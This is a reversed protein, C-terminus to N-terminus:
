INIECTMNPGCYGSCCDTNVTCAAGLPACEVETPGCTGDVRCNGSCCDSAATCTQGDAVCTAAGCLLVGNADPACVVGGCCDANTACAEGMQACADGCVNNTCIGSCCDATGACAIGDLTCMVGGMCFGNTCTGSCCDGDMQCVEGDLRCGLSGCRLVGAVGPQCLMRGIDMEDPCCANSNPECIEGAPACQGPNNCRGIGETQDIIM